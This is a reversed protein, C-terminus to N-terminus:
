MDGSLKCSLVILYTSLIWTARIYTPRPKTKQASFENRNLLLVYVKNRRKSVEFDPSLCNVPLNVIMTDFVTRQVFKNWEEFNTVEMPDSV